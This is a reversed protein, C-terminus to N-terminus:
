RDGIAFSLIVVEAVIGYNLSYVTFLNHPILDFVRLQYLLIGALVFSFGLIFYRAAKYGQRLLRFAHLYILMFPILYIYQSYLVFDQNLEVFKVIIYFLIGTWVWKFRANEELSYDLFFRAYFSFTTIFLVPAVFINTIYNIQPYSPWLFQFGFGDEVFSILGCCLVYFVYFLNVLERSRVFILFNYVAMILLIGYFLGLFYYERALYSTFYAQSRIKLEFGMPYASRVKLMYKQVRGDSPQLDFALNSIKYKRLNFDRGHGAKQEHVFGSADVYYLVMEEAHLSYSELVYKKEPVSGKLHFKLWYTHSSNAMYAYSSENVHFLSDGDFFDTVTLVNSSDAFVSLYNGELPFEDIIKDLLLINQAYMSLPSAILFFIIGTTLRFLKGLKNLHM